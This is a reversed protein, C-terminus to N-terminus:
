QGLKTYQSIVGRPFSGAAEQKVMLNAQGEVKSDGINMLM